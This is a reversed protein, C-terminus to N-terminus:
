PAGFLLPHAGLTSCAMQDRRFDWQVHVNGDFSHTAAPAAGFPAARDVSQLAGLDFASVGSPRVIGRRVVHGDNGALIMEITAILSADGLPHDPPLHDAGALFQDAFIPHLKAHIQNIYHAFPRAADNLPRRRHSPDVPGLVQHTPDRHSACGGGAALLLVIALQHL